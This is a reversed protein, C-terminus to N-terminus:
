VIYRTCKKKKGESKKKICNKEKKQYPSLFLSILFPLGEDGEDGKIIVDSGQKEIWLLNPYLYSCPGVKPWWLLKLSPGTSRLGKFPGCLFGTNLNRSPDLWDHFRFGNQVESLLLFSISTKYVKALNFRLKSFDTHTEIYFSFIM